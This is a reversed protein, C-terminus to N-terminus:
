SKRSNKPLTTYAAGYRFLTGGPLDEIHKICAPVFIAEFGPSYPVAVEIMSNVPYARLSRFSFGGRSINDSEAIEEGLDAHRLLATFNVRSRLARRRNGARQVSAPPVLPPIPGPRATEQHPLLM